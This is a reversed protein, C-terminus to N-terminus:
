CPETNGCGELLADMGPGQDTRYHLGDRLDSGLDRCTGLAAAGEPTYSDLARLDIELRAPGEAAAARAAEVLARGTTDDLPGSVTLTTTAGDGVVVVVIANGSLKPVPRRARDGRPTRQM